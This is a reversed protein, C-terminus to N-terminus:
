MISRTMRLFIFETLDSINELSIFENIQGEPTDYELASRLAENIITEYKKISKM